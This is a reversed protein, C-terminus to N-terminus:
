TRPLRHVPPNIYKVLCLKFLNPHYMFHQHQLWRQLPTAAAPRPKNLLWYAFRTSSWEYYKIHEYQQWTLRQRCTRYSVTYESPYLKSFIYRVRAVHPQTCFVLIHKWSHQDIIKKSFLANGITDQSQEEVFVLSRSAGHKLAYHQMAAAETYKGPSPILGSHKGSFIIPIHQKKSVRIAANIERQVIKPIEGAASVGKGLIIIVDARKKIM